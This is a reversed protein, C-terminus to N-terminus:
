KRIEISLDKPQRIEFRLQRSWTILDNFSDTLQSLHEAKTLVEGLLVFLETLSYSSNIVYKTELRMSM